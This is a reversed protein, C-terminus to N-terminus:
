QERNRCLCSIMGERGRGERGGSLDIDKELFERQKISYLWQQNLAWSTEQALCLFFFVAAVGVWWEDFSVAPRKSPFPSRHDLFPAPLSSFTNALIPFVAYGQYGCPM